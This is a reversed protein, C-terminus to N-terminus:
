NISAPCHGTVVRTRHASVIKWVNARATKAATISRHGCTVGAERMLWEHNCLPEGDITIHAIKRNM